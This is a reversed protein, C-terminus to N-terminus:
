CDILLRQKNGHHQIFCQLSIRTGSNFGIACHPRQVNFLILDGSSATITIPKGLKTRLRSQSASDQISLGSLTIANRYWDWKNYINMPWINLIEQQQNNVVDSQQENPLQLYINASFLGRNTNLVEMDDVHIYGDKWRTPGHMIRTLGGGYSPRHYLIDNNNTKNQIKDYDNYRALGAGHPWIEDLQLRLLDLPWLQPQQQEQPSSLSSSPQQEQQSSLSPEPQQQPMMFRRKKFEKSVNTFYNKKNEVTHYSMNYPLHEGITMVDSSELGRKVATGDDVGTSTQWNSLQNKIKSENELQKGLEISTNRPYFEKVHIALVKHNMLDTLNQPTYYQNTEIVQLSHDMPISGYKNELIEFMHYIANSRKSSSIIRNM